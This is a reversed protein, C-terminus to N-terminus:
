LGNARSAFLMDLARVLNGSGLPTRPPSLLTTPGAAHDVRNAMRIEAHENSADCYVNLTPTWLRGAESVHLPLFQVPVALRQLPFPQDGGNYIRVPTVARFPHQTLEQLHLRGVVRTAYCLEGQRTNPGFWSDSPRTVPLDLLPNSTDDSCFVLWVPTSIYLTVSVQPAIFLQHAPRVVVPRDALKPLLQMYEQTTAGVHRRLEGDSIQDTAAPALAQWDHRDESIHLPQQIRIQWEQELRTIALQLDALQWGLTAGSDWHQRGWWTQM